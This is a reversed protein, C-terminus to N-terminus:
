KEIINGIFKKGKEMKRTSSAIGEMFHFNEKAIKTDELRARIGSTYYM